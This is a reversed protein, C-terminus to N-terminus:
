FGKFRTDSEDFRSQRENSAEKGLEILAKCIAEDQLKAKILVAALEKALQEIQHLQKNPIPELNM